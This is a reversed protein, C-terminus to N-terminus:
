GHSAGGQQLAVWERAGNYDDGGRAIWVAGGADVARCGPVWGEPDRLTNMWGAALGERNIVVVGAGSPISPYRARYKKAKALLGARVRYAAKDM